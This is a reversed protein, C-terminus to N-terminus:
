VIMNGKGVRKKGNNWMEVEKKMTVCRQQGGGWRTDVGRDVNEQIQEEAM